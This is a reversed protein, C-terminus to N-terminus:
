LCKAPKPLGALKTAQKAPGERFLTFLYKSSGKEPGHAKAVAKVLMRVAPSTKFELYFERVFLIIELHDETLVIGEQEALVPIMAEEWQTYDKLYGEADTDISTGYYDFM